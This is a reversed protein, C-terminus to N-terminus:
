DARPLLGWLASKRVPTSHTPYTSCHKCSHFRSKRMHARVYLPQPFYIVSGVLFFFSVLGPNDSLFHKTKFPFLTFRIYCFMQLQLPVGWERQCTQSSTQINRLSLTISYFFLCILWTYTVCIAYFMYNTTLNIFNPSVRSNPRALRNSRSWVDTSPYCGTLGATNWGM